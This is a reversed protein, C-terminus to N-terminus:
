SQRLQREAELWNEVDRGHPRGNALWIEYARAAIEDKSPERNARSSQSLSSAARQRSRKPRNIRSADWGETANTTM